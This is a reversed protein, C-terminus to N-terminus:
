IYRSLEINPGCIIFVSSVLYRTVSIINFYESIYSKSYFFEITSLNIVDILVSPKRKENIQM